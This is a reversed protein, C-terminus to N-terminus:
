VGENIKSVLFQNYSHCLDSLGDVGDKIYVEKELYEEIRQKAINFLYDKISKDSSKVDEKKFKEMTAM